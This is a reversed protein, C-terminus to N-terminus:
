LLPLNEKLTDPPLHSAQLPSPIILISICKRASTYTGQSTQLPLLYLLSVRSTFYLPLLMYSTRSIVTSSAHSNKSFTGRINLFISVSLSTPRPYILSPCGEVVNDPPSACRILSAVSSLLLLVPLVM